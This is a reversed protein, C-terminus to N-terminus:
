FPTFVKYPTGSGTEVQWPEILLNANFRRVPLGRAEFAAQVAADRVQLLPEYCNAFYLAEAHVEAQLMELERLSQGRRILLEGGLARVDHQLSQLSFHLWARSAAGPAWHREEEPAHVYILVPAFGDALAQTLAPNDQLRLDRRLWVLATAM